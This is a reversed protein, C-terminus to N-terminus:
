YKTKVKEKRVHHSIICWEYTRSVFLVWIQDKCCVRGDGRGWGRGSVGEGGMDEGLPLCADHPGVLVHLLNVTLLLAIHHAEQQPHPRPLVTVEVLQVTGRTGGAWLLSTAKPVLGLLTVM